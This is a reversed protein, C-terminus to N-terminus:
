QDTNVWICRITFYVILARKLLRHAEAEVFKRGLSNLEVKKPVCTNFEFFALKVMQIM